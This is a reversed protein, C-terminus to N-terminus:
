RRRTTLVIAEPVDASEAVREMEKRLQAQRMCKAQEVVYRGARAEQLTEPAQCDDAPGGCVPCLGDRYLQLAVMWAREDDDWEAEVTSAVM